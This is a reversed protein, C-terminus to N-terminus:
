PLFCIGCSYLCSTERTSWFSHVIKGINGALSKNLENQDVRSVDLKREAVRVARGLQVVNHKAEVVENRM